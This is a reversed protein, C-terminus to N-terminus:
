CRASSRGAVQGHNNRDAYGNAETVESDALLGNRKEILAHGSLPRARRRLITGMTTLPLGLRRGRVGVSPMPM